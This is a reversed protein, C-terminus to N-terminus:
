QQLFEELDVSKSTTPKKVSATVKTLKSKKSLLEILLDKQSNTLNEPIDFAWEGRVVHWRILRLDVVVEKTTGERGLLLKVTDDHMHNLKFTVGSPDIWYAGTSVTGNKMRMEQFLEDARVSYGQSGLRKRIEATDLVSSGLRISAKKYLSKANEAGITGKLSNELVQNGFVDDVHDKVFMSLDGTRRYVRWKGQNSVFSAQAKQRGMPLSKFWDQGNQFKVFRRQGPLSDAQMFDPAQPGGPVVYFETCRGRYHDDVREGPALETGHLAICSLCTKTDLRAIRIKKEIFKGNFAEMALGAERYATLQLTRTLNEAAHLPIGEAHQRIMRAIARPNQGEFIGKEVANRTLQYYGEGWKAMRAKYAETHIFDAAKYTSLLRPSPIKWPIGQEKFLSEYLAMSRAPNAGQEILKATMGVFARSTVSVPALNIGSAQIADDNAKILAGTANMLTLYALLAKTLTADDKKFKKDEESLRVAEADLEKLAMQMEGGQSTALRQIQQLMPMATQRYGSDLENNLLELVSLRKTM